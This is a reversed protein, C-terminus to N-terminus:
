LPNDFDEHMESDDDFYADYRMRTPRRSGPSDYFLEIWLNACTCDQNIRAAIDNEFRHWAGHENQAKNQSFLNMIAGKGGLQKGIIHGRDDEGIRYDPPDGAPDTGTMESNYCVRAYTMDHIIHAVTGTKIREM